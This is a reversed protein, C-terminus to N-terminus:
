TGNITCVPLRLMGAAKVQTEEARLDYVLTTSVQRHGAMRQVVGLDAGADLLHTIFSRRLDHCSFLRVGVQAARKALVQAVAETSLRKPILHGAKTIPLFMPGIVVGRLRLWKELPERIGEVIYGFRPRQGKGRILVKGEEAKYDALDLAVLESRRLGLGYLVALIAADRVGAPSHDGECVKFLDRLEGEKLSRGRPPLEGRVPVIDAARAYEEYSMLGLRWCEKLVGRLAALMRKTTNPAYREVLTARIASTQAYRLSAWNLSGSDCCGKSLLAAITDLAQKQSTRSGPGLRNLFVEVPDTSVATMPVPSAQFGKLDFM